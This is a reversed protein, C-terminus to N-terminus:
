TKTWAGTRIGDAVRLTRIRVTSSLGSINKNKLMDHLSNVGYASGRKTKIGDRNLGAIIERYSQGSAYADFIRRVIQAEADEVALRKKDGDLVVKYGLAPKGGTHQQTAAMYRMKEMVKQRTQLVWMQNFVAM